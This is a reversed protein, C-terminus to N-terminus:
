LPKKLPTGAKRPYIAPTSKYKKIIIINRIMDTGPLVFEEIKEIKGGLINIARKSKELEESINPGKMIICKGGIKVLPLLYEVLTSMNSVARATAISFKERIKKDRGADEARMHMVKIKKLNNKNIVEQLFNLRKQLSDMLVIEIKENLIKLPVGPFGAGTGVDVITDQDSIYKNITLSDIFHKTIIDKEEIITTLNIKENWEILMKMYKMFANKQEESLNIKLINLQEKFLDEISDM